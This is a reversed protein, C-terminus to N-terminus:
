LKKELEVKVCIYYKDHSKRQSILYAKGYEM